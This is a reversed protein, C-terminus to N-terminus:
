FVVVIPLDPRRLDARVDKFFNELKDKYGNADEFDSADKGGQWWLLSALKGGMRVSESARAILNRYLNTKSDQHTYNRSWEDMNTWDFACPVLGITGFGPNSELIRRAFPMGPGIGTVRLKPFIGAHIPEKAEAWSFERNLLFIKPNPQCEPPVYGDWYEQGDKMDRVGGHGMMNSQGALLFIHEPQVSSAVMPIAFTLFLGFLSPFQILKGM